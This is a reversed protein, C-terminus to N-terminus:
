TGISPRPPSGPRPTALALLVIAGAPGFRGPSRVVLRYPLAEERYAGVRCTSSESQVLEPAEVPSQSVSAGGGTGSARVDDDTM